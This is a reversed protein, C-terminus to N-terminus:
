SRDLVNHLILPSNRSLHRQLSRAGEGLSTLTTTRKIQAMRAGPHIHIEYPLRPDHVSACTGQTVPNHSYFYIIILLDIDRRLSGSPWAKVRVLDLPTPPPYASVTQRRQQKIGGDRSSVSDMATMMTSSSSRRCLIPRCQIQERQVDTATPLWETVETGPRMERGRSPIASRRGVRSRM